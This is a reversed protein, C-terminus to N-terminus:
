QGLVGQPNERSVADNSKVGEAASSDTCNMLCSGEDRPSLLMEFVCVCGSSAAQLFQVCGTRFMRDRPGPPHNSPTRGSSSPTEEERDEVPGLPEARPGRQQGRQQGRSGGRGSCCLAELAALVSKLICKPSIQELLGTHETQAAAQPPQQLRESLRGLNSATILTICVCHRTCPAASM